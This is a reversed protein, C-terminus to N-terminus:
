PAAGRESPDTPDLRLHKRLQERHPAGSQIAQGVAKSSVTAGSIGDIQWPETKEGEKVVEVPRSVDLARFNEHFRADRIIKDGLGPTETSQLVTMGIIKEAAPDYGYLIRVVDQYGRAAGELAYGILQGSEDYGAFLNANDETQVVGSDDVRYSERSVAGPLVGFVARELAVRRNEAIRLKTLQYTSVVLLGSMVAIGGLTAILRLASPQPPMELTDLKADRM